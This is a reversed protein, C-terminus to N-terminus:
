LDVDRQESIRELLKGYDFVEKGAAEAHWRKGKQSAATDLPMINLWIRQAMLDHM